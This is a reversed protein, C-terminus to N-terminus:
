RGGERGGEERTVGLFWDLPSLPADRAKEGEGVEAAEFPPFSPPLSPCLRAPGESFPPPPPVPLLPCLRRLLLV